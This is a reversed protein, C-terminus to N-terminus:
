RTAWSRRGGQGMSRWGQGPLREGRV